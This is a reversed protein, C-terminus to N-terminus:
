RGPSNTGCLASWGTLRSPVASMSRVLTTPVYEDTGSSRGNSLRSAMRAVPNWASPTVNSTEAPAPTPRGRSPASARTLPVATGTSITRVPATTPVTALALTLTESTAQCFPMRTLPIVSPCAVAPLM